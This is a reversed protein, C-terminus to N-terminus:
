EERWFLFEVPKLYTITVDDLVPTDRLPTGSASFDVQYQISNSSASIDNGGGPDSGIAAMGTGTDVSVELDGGMGGYDPIYESWTITGWDVSTGPNFSSSTFAGTSVYRGANYDNVLDDEDRLEGWIRIEDVIANIHETGPEDINWGIELEDSSIFPNLEDFGQEEEWCNSEWWGVWEGYPFKHAKYAAANTGDLDLYFYKEGPNPAAIRFGKDEFILTVLHWEGAQWTDCAGEKSIIQAYWLHGHGSLTDEYDLNATYGAFGGKGSSWFWPKIMEEGTSLRFLTRDPDQFGYRASDFGPYMPKIWMQVTGINPLMNKGAKYSLRNIHRSDCSILVGDPLFEGPNTADIVSAINTPTTIGAPDTKSGLVAIGGAADADLNDDFSLRLHAATGPNATTKTALMVQGDYAAPQVAFESDAQMPEPYTELDPKGGTTSISGQEFEEQSTQRWQDFIKVITRIKKEAILNGESDEIKGTSVVEYIGGSHFCGETTYSTLGVNQGSDDWIYKGIYGAKAAWGYNRVGPALGTNPNCNAMLLDADREGIPITESTGDQRNGAGSDREVDTPSPMQGAQLSQYFVNWDKYPRNNEIYTALFNAEQPTIELDGSGPETTTDTYSVKEGDGCASCIYTDHWQDLGKHEIGDGGCKPCVKEAKLGSFLAQLVTYSATNINIPARSQTEYFPSTLDQPNIVQADLYSNVTIFEKINDFTGQGIGHVLKVEEITYFPADKVEIEEEENDERGTASGVTTPTHDADRYDILNATQQEGLGLNRLLLINANNINVKEQEDYINVSYEGGGFNPDQFNWVGESGADDYTKTRALARLEAIARNIGAEALYKAKIEDRFNAAAKLELRANLAFPIAIAFILALIGLAFILAIGKKNRLIEPM